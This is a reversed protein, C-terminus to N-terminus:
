LAFHHQPIPALASRYVGHVAAAARPARHAWTSSAPLNWFVVARLHSRSTRHHKMAEYM